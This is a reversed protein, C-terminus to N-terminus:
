WVPVTGIASRRQYIYDDLDFYYTDGKQGNNIESDLDSHWSYELKYRGVERIDLHWYFWKFKAKQLLNYDM